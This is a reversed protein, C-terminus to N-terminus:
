FRRGHNRLRAARSSEPPGRVRGPHPPACARRILSAKWEACGVFRIQLVRGRISKRKRNKALTDKVVAHGETELTRCGVEGPVYSRPVVTKTYMGNGRVAREFNCHRPATASGAACAEIPRPSLSSRHACRTKRDPVDRLRLQKGVDRPRVEVVVVVYAPLAGNGTPVGSGLPMTGPMPLPM